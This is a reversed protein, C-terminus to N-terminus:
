LSALTESLDWLTKEITITWQREDIEADPQIYVIHKETYSEKGHKWVLIGTVNLNPSWPLNFPHKTSLIPKHTIGNSM